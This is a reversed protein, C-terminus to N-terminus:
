SRVMFRRDCVEISYSSPWLAEYVVGKLQSRVKLYAEKDNARCAFSAFKNANWTKDPFRKLMDEFGAKMLKWDPGPSGKSFQIASDCNCDEGWYLRAYMGQGEASRTMDAARRAFADFERMSGGWRPSYVRAMQAHIQLDLPFAAVAEKYAAEVEARPAGREMLNAIRLSHWLPCGGALAKSEELRASAKAMREHFLEWAEKPVKYAYGSGRAKWAYGSWFITETLAQALSDPSQKRWKELQIRYKPWENWVGFTHNVASEYIMLRPQGDPFREKGSCLSQFSAELGAFDRQQWQEELPLWALNMQEQINETNDPEPPTGAAAAGAMGLLGSCVGARLAAKWEEMWQM